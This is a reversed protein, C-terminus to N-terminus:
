DDNDSPEDKPSEAGDPEEKMVLSWEDVSMNRVDDRTLEPEDKRWMIWALTIIDRMSAQVQKLPRGKPDDPDPVPRGDADRVIQEEFVVFLDKGTVDEFDEMDGLTLKGPDFEIAKRM